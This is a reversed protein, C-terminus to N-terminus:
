DWATGPPPTRAAALVDVSLAGAELLVAACADATAGSTLVDDVLVVRRGPLLGLHRRGVAFVGAVAAAREAAGLEGLPPTRRMRRLLDPIMPVGSARAVARALLVAQNYRRRILRWPHLPVPVLLDAGELLDRGAAAMLRGIPPALDERDAHKLKLILDRAGGGYLWPARARAFVPPLQRCGQCVSGDPAEVSAALPLGCRDCVPPALFRFRPFCGACILGQDSVPAECVLCTPPVLLDLAGRGLGHAIRGLGHAIRGLGVPGPRGRPEASPSM